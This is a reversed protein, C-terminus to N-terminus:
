DEWNIGPCYDSYSANFYDAFIGGFENFGTGIGKIIGWLITYILFKCIFNIIIYEVLLKGIIIYFPYWLIVLICKFINKNKQKRWEEGYNAFAIMLIVIIASLGFIAFFKILGSWFNGWDISFHLIYVFFDTFINVFMFVLLVLGCLYIFIGINKTIEAIQNMRRKMRRRAEEESEEKKQLKKRYLRLDEFMKDLQVAFDDEKCENVKVDNLLNPHIKFYRELLEFHFIRRASKILDNDHEDKHKLYYIDAPSLQILKRSYEQADLWDTLKSSLYNFVGLIKNGVFKVCKWICVFPLVFLSAITLWFYPCLNKFEKPEFNWVFKILKYHWCHENMSILKEKM